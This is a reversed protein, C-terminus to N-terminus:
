HPIKELFHNLLRVRAIQELDEAGFLSGKLRDLGKQAQEVEVLAAIRDWEEFFDLLAAEHFTNSRISLQKRFQKGYHNLFHKTWSEVEHDLKERGCIPCDRVEKCKDPRGLLSDLIVVYFSTPMYENAYIRHLSAFNRAFEWLQIQYYLRKTQRSGNLRNFTWFADAYNVYVTHTQLEANMDIVVPYREFDIASNGLDNDPLFDLASNNVLVRSAKEAFIYTPSEPYSIMANGSMPESSIFSHFVVLNKYVNWSDNDGESLAMSLVNRKFLNEDFIEGPFKYRIARLTYGSGLGYTEKPVKMTAIIYSRKTTSLTDLQENAM